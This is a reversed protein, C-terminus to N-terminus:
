PSLFLDTRVILLHLVFGPDDLVWRVCSVEGCWTYGRYLAWLIRESCLSSSLKSLTEPVRGM